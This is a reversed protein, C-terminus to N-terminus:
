PKWNDVPSAKAHALHLDDDTQALYRKVVETTSHGLLRSITVIDVGGRLLTLACLRRFTHIGKYSVKAREFARIVLWRLGSYSLRAYDDLTTFLASNKDERVSLWRRVARRALERQSWGRMKLEKILWEGLKSAMYYM